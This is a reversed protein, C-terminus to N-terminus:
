YGNATTSASSAGPGVDKFFTMNMATNRPIIKNVYQDVWQDVRDITSRPVFLIDCPALYVPESDPRQLGRKLNISQAIQKGGINRVLVVTRMKASEKLPGGAMMVADLATMRGRLQLVGPNRVEGGVYIRQSDYSKVVVNIDPNKLKSAYAQLLAQRVEEPTKDQVAVDGVLKMAIKGDPRVTQSSDLDAWYVFQIDLVDGPQLAVVPEPPVAYDARSPPTTVCGAMLLGSAALVVLAGSLTKKGLWASTSM